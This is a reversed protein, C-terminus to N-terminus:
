HALLDSTALDIIQLFQQVSDYEVALIDPKSYREMVQRIIDKIQEDTIETQSSSKIPYYFQIELMQRIYNLDIGKQAPDTEVAFNREEGVYEERSARFSEEATTENAFMGEKTLIDKVLGSGEWKEAQNCVDEFIQKLYDVSDFGKEKILQIRKAQAAQKDEHLYSNRRTEIIFQLWIFQEKLMIM